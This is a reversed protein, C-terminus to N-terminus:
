RRSLDKLPGTYGPPVAVLEVSDNIRKIIADIDAQERRGREYADRLAAGIEAAIEEAEEEGAFVLALNLISRPKLMLLQAKERWEDSDPM